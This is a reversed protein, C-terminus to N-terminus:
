LVGPFFGMFFETFQYFLSSSAPGSEAEISLYLLFLAFFVVAVMIIMILLEVTMAIGKNRIM